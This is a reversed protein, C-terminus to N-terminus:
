FFELETEQLSEEPMLLRKFRVVGPSAGCLKM